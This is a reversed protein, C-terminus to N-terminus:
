KIEEFLKGLRACAEEILESRSSSYNLRLCDRGDEENVCFPAGPIFAVKHRSIAQKNLEATDTGPIRAWVFLGGEPKTYVTEKPFYKKIGAELTDFREKYIAGVKKLHEPLLGRSMFEACIAQPLTATHTDAGQKVLELRSIIDASATAAGVRLGPAITKSFSNLMIVKGAKDMSKIPPLPTGAFRVDGYPDDELVIMDYEEALQAIRQRRQASLSRGSPNQFTPITYLLKPKYQKIKAELDDTLLGEEDMEVPIINANLKRMVNLTALFTPSEVLIVDGPDIFVDLILYIGQGSGTFTIVNNIEADVGKPRVLHELYAELFPRYGSTIGYELMAVGKERLLEDTIQRIQEMPYSEAAPNGGGLSIIQPDAMMKFIERIVSGKIRSLRDSYQVM